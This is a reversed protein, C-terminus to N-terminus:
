PLYGGASKKVNRRGVAWGNTGAEGLYFKYLDDSSPHADAAADEKVELPRMQEILWSCNAMSAPSTKQDDKVVPELDAYTNLLWYGMENWIDSVDLYGRRALLGVHDCTNLVDWVQEPPDDVDLRKLEGRQINIRAKALGKLSTSLEQDFRASEEVLHQIRLADRSQRLQAQADERAEKIQKDIFYGSVVVGVFTVLVLLATSWALVRESGMKDAMM